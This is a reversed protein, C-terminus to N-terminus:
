AGKRGDERQSLVWAFPRFTYGAGCAMCIYKRCEGKEDDSVSWIDIEGGCVCMGPSALYDETVTAGLTAPFDGDNGLKVSMTREKCKM